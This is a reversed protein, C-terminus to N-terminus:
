DKFEDLIKKAKRMTKPTGIDFFIGTRKKGLLKKKAILKPLIEEELSQNSSNLYKFIKPSFIYTGSNIYSSKKRAIIKNKYTNLNLLKKTESNKIQKTLICLGVNTKLNINYVNDLNIRFFSDGNVLIFKNKIKKKVLNLAGGTGLPKKEILCKISSNKIKQNHFLKKIKEGKYGAIIYIKYFNFKSLYDLLIKLFPKNNIKVLPKPIKNKTISRLRRGAGGALIVISKNNM